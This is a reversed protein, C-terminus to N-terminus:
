EFTQTPGAGPLPTSTPSGIVEHGQMARIFDEKCIVGDNHFDAQRMLGDLAADSVDEGVLQKLEDRTITGDGDLDLANFASILTHQDLFVQFRARCCLVIHTHTVIVFLVLLRFPPSVSRIRVRNFALTRTCM